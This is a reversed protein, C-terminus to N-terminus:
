SRRFSVVNEGTMVNRDPYAAVLKWRKDRSSTHLMSFDPDNHMLVYWRGAYEEVIPFGPQNKKSEIESLDDVRLYTAPDSIAFWSYRDGAQARPGYRALKQKLDDISQKLQPNNHATFTPSGPDRDALIRFELVGAGRLRRKLDSPDELDAKNVAWADYAAVAKTLLKGTPSSEDGFDYSPYEGRIKELQEKRKDPNELALIDTFRAVPMSSDLLASMADEYTNSAEEMATTDGSDRVSLYADYLEKVKALLADREVVGRQLDALMKDRQEAPANLAEEVNRRSINLTHIQDVTENYSERRALAEKPPRPMRIELRTNGVPRWELNLQGRPDVRDKLIRM